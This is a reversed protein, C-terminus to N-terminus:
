EKYKQLVRSGKIRGLTKEVEKSRSIEREKERRRSKAEREQGETKVWM